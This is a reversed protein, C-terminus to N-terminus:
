GPLPGRSSPRIKSLPQQWRKPLVIEDDNPHYFARNGQVHVFNAGSEKLLRDTRESAEWDPGRAHEREPMHNIQQATFM